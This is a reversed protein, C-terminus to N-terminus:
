ESLRIAIRRFIKSIEELITEPLNEPLKVPFVGSHNKFSDLHCKLFFIWFFKQFLGLLRILLHYGYFDWFSKRFFVRPKKPLIGSINGSADRLSKRFFRRHIEQHIEPPNGSRNGILQRFYGLSIQPHIEVINGSSSRSAYLSDCLSVSLMESLNGSSVM